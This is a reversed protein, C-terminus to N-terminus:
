IILEKSWKKIYLCFYLLCQFNSSQFWKQITIVGKGRGNWNAESTIYKNKYTMGILKYFVLLYVKKQTFIKLLNIKTVFRCYAHILKRDVENSLWTWVMILICTNQVHKCSPVSHSRVYVKLSARKLRQIKPLLHLPDWDQVNYPDKHVTDMYLLLVDKSIRLFM